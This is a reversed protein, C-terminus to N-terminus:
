RAQKLDSDSYKLLFETRQPTDGYVRQAFETITLTEGNFVWFAHPTRPGGASGGSGGSGPIPPSFNILKTYNIM